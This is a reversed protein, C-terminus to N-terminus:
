PLHSKVVYKILDECNAGRYYSLVGRSLQIVGSIKVKTEKHPLINFELFIKLFRKQVIRLVCMNNKCIM